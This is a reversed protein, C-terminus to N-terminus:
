PRLDLILEGSGNSRVEFRLDCHRELERLLDIPESVSIEISARGESFRRISIESTAEIANAADEFSVLQSFDSFPGVDVSIKRQSGAPPAVAVRAETVGEATDATAQIGAGASGDLAAELEVLESDGSGTEPGPAATRSVIPQDTPGDAGEGREWDSGLRTLAGELAVLMSEAATEPAGAVAKVMASVEAAERLATLRIRTAQGRATIRLEELEAGLAALARLQSAASSRSLDLESELYVMRRDREVCAQRTHGLAVDLQESRARYARAIEAQRGSDAEAESLARDM